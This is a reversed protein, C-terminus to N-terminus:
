ILYTCRREIVAVHIKTKNQRAMTKVNTIRTFEEVECKIYTIKIMEHSFSLFIEIISRRCRHQSELGSYIEYIVLTQM